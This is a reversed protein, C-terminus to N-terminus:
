NQQALPTSLACVVLYYWLPLMLVISIPSM